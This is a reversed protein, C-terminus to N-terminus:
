MSGGALGGSSASSGPTVHTSSPADGYLKTGRGFQRIVSRLEPAGIGRINELIFRNGTVKSVSTGALEDRLREIAERYRSADKVIGDEDVMVMIRPAGLVSAITKEMSAGTDETDETDGVDEGRSEGALMILVDAARFVDPFHLEVDARPDVMRKSTARLAVEIEAVTAQPVHSKLLAFTGAIHAAAVSTGISGGFGAITSSLVDTGPAVFDVLESVNSFNSFGVDPAVDGVQPAGVSIVEPVCAPEGVADHYGDNGSSVVTAIGLTRLRGIMPRLPNDRCAGRSRGGGLSMNVAAIAFEDSLGAVHELAALQDSPFSKICPTKDAGGCVSADSFETFIQIAILGASPAVGSIRDTGTRGSGSVSAGLAIGAVHTGHLCHALGDRCHFGSGATTDVDLGNPCLTSVRYVDSGSTSFCAEDRLKGRLFPHDYDVGTDLIAVSYGSGLIDAEHAVDVEM